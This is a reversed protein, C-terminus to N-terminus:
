RFIRKDTTKPRIAFFAIGHVRRLFASGERHYAQQAPLLGGALLSDMLLHGFHSLKTAVTVIVPFFPVCPPAVYL